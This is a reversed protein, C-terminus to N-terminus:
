STYNYKYYPLGASCVGRMRTPRPSVHSLCRAVGAVVVRVYRGSMRQRGGASVRRYHVDVPKAREAGRRRRGVSGAGGEPRGVRAIEVPVAHTEAEVCGRARRQTRARACVCVCVHQAHLGRHM